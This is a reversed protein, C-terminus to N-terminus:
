HHIFNDLLHCGYRAAPRPRIDKSHQRVRQASLHPFQAPGRRRDPGETGAYLLINVVAPRQDDALANDRQHRLVSSTLTTYLSTM